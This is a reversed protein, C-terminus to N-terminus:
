FGSQTFILMSVNSPLDVLLNKCFLYSPFCQFLFDWTRLSQEESFSVISIAENRKFMRSRSM